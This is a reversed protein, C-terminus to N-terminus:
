KILLKNIDEIIAELEVLQDYKKRFIELERLAEKLLRAYEEEVVIMRATQKYAKEESDRSFIRIPTKEHTEENVHDYVISRVLVRATQERWKEAAVADDWEFCKHLETRPDRAFAVIDKPTVEEGISAIEGACKGAEGKFLGGVAWRVGTM